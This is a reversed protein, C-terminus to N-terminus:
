EDSPVWDIPKLREWFANGRANGWDQALQISEPAWNDLDVSRPKSIHTGLGRHQTDASSWLSHLQSLSVLGCCRICLFMVM